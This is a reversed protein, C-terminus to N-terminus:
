ALHRVDPVARFIQPGILGLLGETRVLHFVEMIMVPSASVPGALRYFSEQAALQASLRRNPLATQRLRHMIFLRMPGALFHVRLAQVRYTSDTQQGAHSGAERILIGSTVGAEVM